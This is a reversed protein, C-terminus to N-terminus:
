KGNCITGDMNCFQHSRYSTHQIHLLTCMAQWMLLCIFMVERDKYKLWRTLDKFASTQCLAKCILVEYINILHMSPHIVM